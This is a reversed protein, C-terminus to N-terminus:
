TFALFSWSEDHQDKILIQLPEPWRDVTTPPPLTAGRAAAVAETIGRLHAIEDRKLQQVRSRVADRLEDLNLSNHAGIWISSELYKDGGVAEASVLRPPDDDRELERWVDRLLGTIAAEDGSTALVVVNCVHSM